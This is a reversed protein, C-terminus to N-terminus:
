GAPRKDGEGHRSQDQGIFLSDIHKEAAGDVIPGRQPFGELM